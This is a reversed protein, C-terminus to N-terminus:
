RLTNLNRMFSSDENLFCWECKIGNKQNNYNLIQQGVLQYNFRGQNCNLESYETQELINQASTRDTVAHQGNTYLQSQQECHIFQSRLFLQSDHVRGHLPFCSKCCDNWTLTKKFVCSRCVYKFQSFM